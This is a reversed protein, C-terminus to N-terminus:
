PSHVSTEKHLGIVLPLQVASYSFAPRGFTTVKKNFSDKKFQTSPIKWGRPLQKHLVSVRCFSDFLWMLALFKWGSQNGTVLPLKKEKYMYIM